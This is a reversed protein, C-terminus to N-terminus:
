ISSYFDIVEGKAVTVIAKKISGGRGSIIGSKSYRSKPKSATRLTNVSTINVGYMKEIAAKIEVKNARRDVVFAYKGQENLASLKETILPQKLIEM